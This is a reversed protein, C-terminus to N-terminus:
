SYRVCNVGFGANMRLKQATSKRSCIPNAMKSTRPCFSKVLTRKPTAPQSRMSVDAQSGELQGEGITHPHAQCQGVDEQAHPGDGPDYIVISGENSSENQERRDADEKEDSSEQQGDLVRRARRSRQVPEKDMDGDLHEEDDGQLEVNRLLEKHSESVVALM